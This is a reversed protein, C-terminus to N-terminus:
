KEEQIESNNMKAFETNIWAVTQPKPFEIVRNVSRGKHDKGYM